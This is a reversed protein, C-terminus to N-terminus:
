CIPEIGNAPSHCIKCETFKIKGSTRFPWNLKHLLVCQGANTRHQGKGAGFKM